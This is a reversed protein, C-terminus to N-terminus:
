KTLLNGHPPTPPPSLHPPPEFLRPRRCRNGELRCMSCRASSNHVSRLTRRRRDCKEVLWSLSSTVVTFAVCVRVCLSFPPAHTRATSDNLRPLGALRRRLPHLRPARLDDPDDPRLQLLQVRPFRRFPPLFLRRQPGSLTTTGLVSVFHM